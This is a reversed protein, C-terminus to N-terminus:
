TSIKLLKIAEFNAIGGGVRKTTYFMVNPKNTYPDRLVRIGVRDIVLYARKFDAFAIPFNGAGIVDMNDDTEVAKGLLTAPEGIQNSPQWQFQGNSDKLKRVVGATADAMLWSAGNRFASKLAYSLDILADLGDPDTDLAAAAGSVVFGTKGWAWSANAIKDYGLIGRPKAVGDGTVFALGEEAAFELSVEDALWQEINISADDLTRQTTGPNAYLEKVPFELASLKPTDTEPRSEEEEVWGSAAGSTAVLKKYSNGGISIVRALRRVASVTTLVRDIKSEMEEPVLYGGDPDSQTTLGAKVELDRLGSEVGRRFFTDFAGAHAAVEPSHATEAGGVQMAAISAIATDLAKQMKGVDANIRDVKESKVVDAQGAKIEALQENHETKFAEFGANLSAFLAEVDPTADARVKVIGRLPPRFHKSM